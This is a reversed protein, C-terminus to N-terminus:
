GNMSYSDSFKWGANIISALGLRVRGAQGRGRDHDHEVILRPRRQQARDVRDYVARGGPEDFFDKEDVVGGFM